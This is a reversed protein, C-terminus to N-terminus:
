ARREARHRRRDPRRHRRDRRVRRPRDRRARARGRRPAQWSGGQRYVLDVLAIKGDLSAADAPALAARIGDRPTMVPPWAPFLSLTRGGIAVSCVSPEYLPYPFQQRTVALGAGTLKRSLWRTTADDAATSVRHEGLADYEEVERFMAEGDFPDAVAAGAPSAATALLLALSQRRSLNTM